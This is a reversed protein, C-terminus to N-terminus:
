EGGITGPSSFNLLADYKQLFGCVDSYLRSSPELERKVRAANKSVETYDTM